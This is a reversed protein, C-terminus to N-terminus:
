GRDGTKSSGAALGDIAHFAAGLLGARVGLAAPVVPAVGSAGIMARAALTRRAPDFLLEGAQAVGGGVVFLAPDILNSLNALAAGLIEGARGFVASAVADGRRAAEALIRPDLGQVDGALADYAIGGPVWAAEARYASVLGQRGVFLELCGRNGCPCLPGDWALSMHGLEGGFGHYGGSLRGGIVVAGGVGTGLTLAVVPSYGRGAGARAEALAFADADNLVFVPLSLEKALLPGLPTEKWLPLNPSVHVIGANRSVLGACGVGVAEIRRGQVFDRLARGLTRLAQEQPQGVPTQVQCDALIEGTVRVLGAKVATGGIDIGLALIDRDGM